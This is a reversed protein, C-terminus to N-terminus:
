LRVRGRLSQFKLLLALCLTVMLACYFLGYLGYRTDTGILFGHVLGLAVVVLLGRHMMKWTDPWRKRLIAAFVALLAMFFGCLGVTIATHYFDRFDPLLLEWAITEKRLSVAVIFCIMHSMIALLTLSGLIRHRLFTWRPLAIAYRTEKLLVSLAQYWLLLAGYLGLLKSFVYWIQGAPAGYRAYSYVDTTLSWLCLPLMFIVLWCLRSVSELRLPLLPQFPKIFSQM